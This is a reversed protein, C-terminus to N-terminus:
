RRHEAGFSPAPVGVRIPCEGRPGPLVDYARTMRVMDPRWREGLEACEDETVLRRAKLSQTMPERLETGEVFRIRVGDLWAAFAMQEDIRGRQYGWFAEDAEAAGTASYAVREGARMGDLTVPLYSLRVDGIM